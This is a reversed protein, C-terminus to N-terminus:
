QTSIDLVPTAVASEAQNGVGNVAGAHLHIQGSSVEPSLNVARLVTFRLEGGPPLELQEFRISGEGTGDVLEEEPCLAADLGLEIRNDECQWSGDDLYADFVDSAPFVEEFSVRDAKAEGVNHIVLDYSLVDGPALSAGDLTEVVVEGVMPNEYRIDLEPYAAFADVFVVNTDQEGDSQNDALAGFLGFQSDGRFFCQVSPGPMYTLLIESSGEAPDEGVTLASDVWISSMVRHGSGNPDAASLAIVPAPDTEFDFCFLPNDYSNSDVSRTDISFDVLNDAVHYKVANGTEDTLVPFRVNEHGAIELTLAFAASSLGLLAVAIPLHIRANRVNPKGQHQDPVSARM